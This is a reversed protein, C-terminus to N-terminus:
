DHVAQIKYQGDELEVLGFVKEPSGEEPTYTVDVPPDVLKFKLENYGVWEGKNIIRADFINDQFSATRTTLLALQDNKRAFEQKTIKLHKQAKVYQNYQKVFAAPMKVGSKKYHVLKKKVATFSSLNDKLLQTYKEIEETANKIEKELELIEEQNGGFGEQSDRKLLPDITFVNESGQIKHIEIRRSATANVYSGCLDITIEKGRVNGGIAQSIEIVDGDIVGHELRTINITKGYAMGKHINIQLNNARVMATKHTQGHVIAKLAMVKANSGVNGEIEIESVEVEMGTGIADKISDAEKVNLSVDSDLGTSISGTTKFSIEGVDMDTKIVYTGNDLDIYGKEKAYYEIGNETEVVKITDNVNFNPANKTEPEKPNMFEGRCNRGPKGNKPKKYEILLEDKLVSKLFGRRSFDISENEAIEAKKEFHLILSDNQTLTPEFSQAILITENKDYIARQAVQVHAAIKSVVDDLMEDFINVLINARIKKKNILIKLNHEFGSAYSVESGEKISLYVKCKTANAGVSLNFVKYPDEQKNKSFIEVEYMQKIEFNPNLLESEEDFEYVQSESVEEWDGETKGDNLRTYTQVELINFDLNDVSIDYSKSMQVLEKAVNQTRVVTPRVKVLSTKNSSEFLAM